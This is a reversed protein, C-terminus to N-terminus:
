SRRRAQDVQRAVEAAVQQGSRKMSGPDGGGTLNVTINIVTTGGLSSNPEVRGSSSPVFLEPGREGVLYPQGGSVPGGMARAPIGLANNLFGSFANFVQSQIYARAMESLMDSFGRTVNEFLNSFGNDWIDDIMGQMAGLGASAVSQMVEAFERAKQTNKDLLAYAGAYTANMANALDSMAAESLQVPGLVDEARPISQAMSDALRDLLDDSVGTSIPQEFSTKNGPGFAVGMRGPLLRVQRLLVAEQLKMRVLNKQLEDGISKYYKLEIGLWEATKSRPDSLTAISTKFRGLVAEYAKYSEDIRSIYGRLSEGTLLEVKDFGAKSAMALMRSIEAVRAVGGILGDALGEVVFRGMEQMVRSPSRIQMVNKFASVVQAGLNSVFQTVRQQAGQMGSLLGEIAMKGLERLSIAIGKWIRTTHEAIRTFIGATTVQFGAFDGGILQLAAKILDGITGLAVGVTKEIFQWAAGYIRMITEGHADFFDAIWGFRYEIAKSILDLAFVVAKSINGFAAGIIPAWEASWETLNRTLGSWSATISASLTSFLKALNAAFTAVYPQIWLVFEATAERIGLFNNQWAVALGAVAAVVVAIAIGVPGTLVAGVGALATAVAGGSALLGGAGFLAGISGAASAISGVFLLIPGAVAALGALAITAQQVPEPLAAFRSVAISLKDLVVTLQPLFREGLTLKLDDMKNNFGELAREYPGMRAAAAAAASGQKSIAEIFKNLGAEGNRMLIMASRIGDSGFIQGMKSNRDKESLGDFAKNLEGILDPMQKFRGQSDYLKINLADIAKAASSSPAMLAMLMSKLSTGADSGRIGANAMLGLTAALTEVRQNASRFVASAQTFGLRMDSVESTSKNAAGALLDAIKAANNGALGFSALATAMFDASEAFGEGAAKALLLAGRMAGATDAVALGGKSLAVAADLADKAAVGPLSADTGLQRAIGRLKEMEAGTAGSAQQLVSMASQFEAAANVSEKAFDLIPRTLRDTLQSGAMTASQGVQLLSDSTKKAHDAAAKAGKSAAESLKDGQKTLRDALKKIVAEAERLEKELDAADGGILVEIEGVTQAM